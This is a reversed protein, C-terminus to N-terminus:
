PQSEKADTPKEPPAPMPSKEPAAAPALAEAAVDAKVEVPGVQGSKPAAGTKAESKKHAPKAKKPPPVDKSPESLTPVDLGIIPTALVSAKHEIKAPIQQRPAWELRWVWYGVAAAAAVILLSVMLVLTMVRRESRRLVDRLLQESERSRAILDSITSSSRRSTEDMSTLTHNFRNMSDVLQRDHAVSSEVQQRLVNLVEVQQNAAANLTKMGDLAEPVKALVEVVKSQVNQQRDLHDRISRVLDIMEFYGSQLSALQREQRSPNRWRQWWGPKPGGANVPELAQSGGPVVEAAVPGTAEGTHETKRKFLDSWFTM